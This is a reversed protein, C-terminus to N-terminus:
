GTEPQSGGLVVPFQADREVSVRDKEAVLGLADEFLPLQQLEVRVLHTVRTRRQRGTRQLWEKSGQACKSALAPRRYLHAHRQDCGATRRRMFPRNARQHRPADRDVLGHKEAALFLGGKERFEPGVDEEVVVHAVAFGGRLQYRGPVHRIADVIFAPWNKM